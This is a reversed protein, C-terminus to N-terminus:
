RIFGAPANFETKLKDGPAVTLQCIKVNQKNYKNIIITSTELNLFINQKESLEKWNFSDFDM